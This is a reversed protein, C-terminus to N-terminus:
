YDGISFVWPFPIEFSLQYQDNQYHLPLVNKLEPMSFNTATEEM